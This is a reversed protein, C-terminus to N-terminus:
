KKMEELTKLISRTIWTSRSEAYGESLAKKRHLDIRKVLEEPMSISIINVM